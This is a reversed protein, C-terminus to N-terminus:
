RRGALFVLQQSWSGENSILPRVPECDLELLASGDLHGSHDKVFRLARQHAFLFLERQSVPIDSRAAHEKPRLALKQDRSQDSSTCRRTSRATGKSSTLQAPLAANNSM